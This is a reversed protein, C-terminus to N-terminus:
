AALVLDLGRQKLNHDEFSRAVQNTRATSRRSWDAYEAVANVATWKTGPANGRTDGDPHNGAFIANLIERNDERNKRARDRALIAPDDLNLLPVVIRKDFRDKGMRQGALEDGLEKLAANWDLVIGMVQRAEELKLQMDGTHRFRYTRQAHKGSEAQRLAWGLTNQCVVRVDTAAATVAMSGDHSNACFVFQQIEDGGIEVNDPIRVLVWVRKGGNISGATEFQVETGLLADLWRFADENAVVKYDDSVIGLIDSTDERVNARWGKAAVLRSELEPVYIGEDDPNVFPPQAVFVDGQRVNWRLGAKELADEVGDPYDDLVVGLRHWPTERVSFMTDRDTIGHAM